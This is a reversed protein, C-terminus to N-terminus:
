KRRILVTDTTTEFIDGNTLELVIKFQASQTKREMVEVIRFAFAQHFISNENMKMFEEKSVFDRLSSTTLDSYNLVSSITDNAKYFENYDKLTIVDLKRIGEKAGKEGPENCSLAYLMGGQNNKEKSLTFYDCNFGIKVFYESIDVTDTPLVRNVSSPIETRRQNLSYLSKIRFYPDVPGCTEEKNCALIVNLFILLTIFITKKM